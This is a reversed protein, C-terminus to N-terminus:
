AATNKILEGGSCEGVLRWFILMGWCGVAVRKGRPVKAPKPRAAEHTMMLHVTKYCEVWVVFDLQVMRGLWNHVQHVAPVAGM